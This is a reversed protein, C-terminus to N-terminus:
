KVIESAILAIRNGADSLKYERGHKILLGKSSLKNLIKWATTKPINLDRSIETPGIVKKKLIYSLILLEDAKLGSIMMLDSAQVEIFGEGTELDSVIKIGRSLERPVLLAAILTEIVLARMGGGLSITIEDGGACLNMLLKRIKTVSEEFELPDVDFVEVVSVGALEAVERIRKIADESQKTTRSSPVILYVGRVNKFGLRLLSKIVHREDFGLAAILYPM